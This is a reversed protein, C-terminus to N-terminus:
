RGRRPGAWPSPPTRRSPPAHQEVAVDGARGHEAGDLRGELDDRGVGLGVHAEVLVRRQQDGGAVVVLELGDLLHEVPELLGHVPLGRRPSAATRLELLDVAVPLLGPVPERSRPQPGATARLVGGQHLFDGAQLHQDVLVPTHQVLLVAFQRRHEGVEM